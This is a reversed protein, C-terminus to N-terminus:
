DKKYHSPFNFIPQWYSEQIALPTNTNKFRRFLGGDSIIMFTDDDKFRIDIHFFDFILFNFLNKIPKKVDEQHLFLLVLIMKFYLDNETKEWDFEDMFESAFVKNMDDMKFFNAFSDEDAFHFWTKEKLEEESLISDNGKLKLYFKDDEGLEKVVTKEIPTSSFLQFENETNFVFPTTHNESLIYHILEKLFPLPFNNIGNIEQYSARDQLILILSFLVDLLQEREEQKFQYKKLESIIANIDKM